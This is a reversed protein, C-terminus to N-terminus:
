LEIERAILKNASCYKAFPSPSLDSEVMKAYPIEHSMHWVSVAAKFSHLSTCFVEKKAKQFM